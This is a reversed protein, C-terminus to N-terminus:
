VNQAKRPPRGALDGLKQTAARVIEVDAAQYRISSKPDAHDLAGMITRLGEGKANLWTGLSHRAMHPTFAIGIGGVLPRLWRYVGSKTRWPFVHLGRGDEPIAALAEFIEPHLPKETWLGNRKGIRMRVTQRSLDINPWEVALTDSIRTGLHFSWLLFLRRAGDPAAQVVLAATDESVARTKPRPERFLKIRLWPCFDNEAAYHLVAAAPRMIERNKTAPAKNPHLQAAAAVLDAHRIDGVLKGGIVAVLRNLRRADPHRNDGLDIERAEAYLAAATKFTVAEGPRPLRDQALAAEFDRAFKRAAKLDATKASVEIDRGSVTGRVLYFRNDKRKGPPVLHLPM